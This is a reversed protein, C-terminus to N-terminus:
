RVRAAVPAFRRTRRERWLTYLGTAVVIAAGLLTLADPWEGFILLGLVLAVLLSTYRFPAVVAIEGVRMAMVSCLYGVLVACVAGLLWLVQAGTMPEWDTGAAGFGSFILVGAAAAFAVGLSPVEPSLRRAALDRVTVGLVAILAYISDRTFGDGDPRVILYVGVFGIAIATWRRWGVQEGLFLAAGLTVTLPLAQLIASVNALPMRTLATLFFYAAAIEALTRILVLWRDRPGPLRLAGFSRALLFLLAVVAASRLFLVQFFPLESGLVKFFADNVTFAAMAAAMLAAGQLNPSM